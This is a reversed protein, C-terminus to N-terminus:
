ASPRLGAGSMGTLACVQGKDPLREFLNGTGGLRVHLRKARLVVRGSRTENEERYALNGFRRCFFGEGAADELNAIVTALVRACVGLFGRDHYYAIWPDLPLM